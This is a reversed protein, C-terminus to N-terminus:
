SFSLGISKATGLLINCGKKTDTTNLDNKKLSFVYKLQNYDISAVKVKSSFSSGKLINAEKMLLSSATPSKLVFSFSKDEYVLIKVPILFGNSANTKANFEKCFSAINIGHQGLAPGIPPAPTAKGANLILKVVAKIKKPM